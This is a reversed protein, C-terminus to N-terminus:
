SGSREESRVEKVTPIQSVIEKAEEAYALQRVNATITVVGADADVQIRDDSIGRDLALKARIESVLVLDDMLKQSQPTTQFDRAAVEAITVCASPIPLRELNIMLDYSGPDKADVGHVWKQWNDRKEDLVKLYEIAKARTLDCEEMAIAIRSEISAVISVRLQHPIGKLLLHGAEGHYVINDAQVAKAMTARVCHLYQLKKLGRGELFGPAHTLASELQSQSLGFDAAANTLM